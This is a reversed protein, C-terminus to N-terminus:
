QEDDGGDDGDEPFPEGRLFDGRAPRNWFTVAASRNVGAPPTEIANRTETILDDLPIRDTQEYHLCRKVLDRITGSYMGLGPWVQVDELVHDDVDQVTYSAGDSLYRTVGATQPGGPDFRPSEILDAFNTLLNWMIMGIGWVNTLEELRPDPQLITGNALIHGPQNTSQATPHEHYLKHQEPAIRHNPHSGVYEMPNDEHEDDEGQLDFMADGFDGIVPVRWNVLRQEPVRVDEMPDMDRARTKGPHSPPQPRYEYRSLMLINSPQLDCHVIEEWEPIQQDGDRLFRCAEALARFLYWLYAEPLQSYPAEADNSCAFHLNDWRCWDLYLRYRRERHHLRFGRYQVIHHHGNPHYGSAPRVGHANEIREHIAVERPLNDRWNIPDRWKGRHPIRVDKVAMHDIINGVIDVMAWFGIRSEYSAQLGHRNLGRDDSRSALVQVGRWQQDIQQHDELFAGANLWDDNGHDINWGMWRPPDQADAGQPWYYFDSTNLNHGDVKTIVYPDNRQKATNPILRPNIRPLQRSGNTQRWICDTRATDSVNEWLWVLTSEVQGRTWQPHMAKLPARFAAKYYDRASNYPPPM